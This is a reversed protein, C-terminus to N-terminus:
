LGHARAAKAMQRGVQEGGSPPAKAEQSNLLRLANAVVLLSV